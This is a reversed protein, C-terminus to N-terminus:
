YFLNRLSSRFFLFCMSVSRLFLSPSLRMSKYSFYPLILNVSSSNCEDADSSSLSTGSTEEEEYSSSLIYDDSYDYSKLRFVPCDFRFEDYLAGALIWLKYCILVFLLPPPGTLNKQIIIIILNIFTCKM